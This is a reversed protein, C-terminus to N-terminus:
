LNRPLTFNTRHSKRTFPLGLGSCASSRAPVYTMSGYGSNWWWCPQRLPIRDNHIARASAVNAAALVRSRRGTWRVLPDDFPFATDKLVTNRGGGRSVEVSGGLVAFEPPDSRFRYVGAGKPTVSVDRHHLTVRPKSNLVEITLSGSLLEIREGSLKARTHEAMRIVVGPRMMVEALGLGTELTEGPQWAPFAGSGPGPRPEAIDRGNLLASGQLYHVFVTPIEFVERADGDGRPVPQGAALAGFVALLITARRM